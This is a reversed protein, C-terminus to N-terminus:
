ADHSVEAKRWSKGGAHKLKGHLVQSISTFHTGTARAAEAGCPFWHETGDDDIMVVAVKQSDIAKQITRRSAERRREVSLPNKTLNDYHTVIRLNDLRNNGRSNDIHDIEHGIPIEGVLTEFVVRHVYSTQGAIAVTMYGHGNDNGKTLKGNHLVMGTDSVFVKGKSEAVEVFEIGGVTKRLKGAHFHRTKKKEIM